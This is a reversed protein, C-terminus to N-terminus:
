PYLADVAADVNTQVQSDTADLIQQQTAGDNAALVFRFLAESQGIPDSLAALAWDLRTQSPTAEGLIDEAKVIAAMAVKKRLPSTDLDGFAVEYIEELTAAQLAQPLVFVLGSSLLGALFLRRTLKLM